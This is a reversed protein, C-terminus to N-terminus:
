PEIRLRFFQPSNGMPTAVTIPATSTPPPINTLTAWASGDPTGNTLVMNTLGVVPTFSFQFRNGAPPLPTIGPQAPLTVALQAPNSTLANVANTIVVAYAGAQSLRLNTLSLSSTTAGPLPTGSRRWQYSLPPTGGAVVSFLANGGAVNTFNGPHNTITPGSGALITIYLNTSPTGTFAPHTAILTLKMNNTPTTPVGSIVSYIQVPTRNYLDYMKNTLGPPLPAALINAGPDTGLGGGLMNTHTFFQGVFGTANTPSTFYVSSAGSVSDFAGLAASAGVTWRLIIAFMSAAPPSTCFTRCFPMLQLFAALLIAPNRLRNM